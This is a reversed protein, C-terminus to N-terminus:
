TRETSPACCRWFDSSRPAPRLSERDAGPSTLSCHHPANGLDDLHVFRNDGELLARRSGRGVARTAISTRKALRGLWGYVKPYRELDVGARGVARIIWPVYAIDALSFRSGVLYPSASFAGDLMGLEAELEEVPKGEFLVGYYPGSLEEFREFCLRV